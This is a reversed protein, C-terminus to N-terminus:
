PKGLRRAVQSLLLVGPGAVNFTGWRDRVTSEVVVNIAEDLHLFQLRPDFGLASPLLPNALYSRFPSPIDPHLIQAMRLMTVIVEPRRRSFGRVYSEVEVSDKPFGSRVGNRAND